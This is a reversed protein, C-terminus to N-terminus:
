EGETFSILTRVDLGNAALARAGGLEPLDIIAAITIQDVGLRRFLRTAAM